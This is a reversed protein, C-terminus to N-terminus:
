KKALINLSIPEMLYEGANVPYNTSVEVNEHDTVRYWKGEPVFVKKVTDTPNVFLLVENFEGTNQYWLGILPSPFELLGIKTRIEETSRMRFCSFMKRIELLGKIYNVNQLYQTRRNWDLKNISDPSRFSNGDGNKTRLFEQGSHLFPIGQALIVLGTALRHYRMRTEDDVHPFCSVLKDWLTHNDHCEVYNVSQFPENFLATEYNNFGISGTLVERAAKYYHENGFAYGKDFLNFTSGKITDRFWDNFQGIKPIKAQNRIIAKKDPALPTNLNWGEGILLIEKSFSNCVERVQNMTEIDLIGMLDFRFGDVKYEEIWFRVSDLIYKRVMKRESAIDNGVGTGNSPLGFENHRFYYGPVIKEFSSNERVYVHNYVVDLIVRLGAQHVSEVMQQLEIIRSYPNSPNTSYSGEPVNFHIPNYGWNYSNNRDLEDVGAFDHIPLVEIHTIGLDILYSLGTLGNDHSRTEIEGAGLYLGKNKVGSNADITFDRIHTEYIVADVPSEFPPLPAPGQDTKNLKVIVGLEGNATVAKVYPDVAERWEQNILVLFSYLYYELDKNVVATWIGREVRKMKIIEAFSSDPHRLKIKVQVATPAWLKFCTHDPSCIVGLDQGEYYFYEDFEKTRIVAGVQLDIKGGHEDIIWYTKGFSIPEKHQCIYKRDFELKSKKIINLPITQTKEDLLSFTSSLGNHYSLPLLITIINMEDLYALFTREASTM